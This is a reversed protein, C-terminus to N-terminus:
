IYQELVEKSCKDYEERDHMYFWCAVALSTIYYTTESCDAFFILDKKILSSFVGRMQRAPAIQLCDDFDVFNANDELNTKLDNYNFCFYDFCKKEMETLGNVTEIVEKM